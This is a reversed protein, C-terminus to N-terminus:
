NVSRVFAIAITLLLAVIVFTPALDILADPNWGLITVLVILFIFSIVINGFIDNLEM